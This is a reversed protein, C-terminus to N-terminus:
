HRSVAAIGVLDIGVQGRNETSKAAIEILSSELRKELAEKAVWDLDGHLGGDL